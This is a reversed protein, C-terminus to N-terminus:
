ICKFPPLQYHQVRAHELGFFARRFGIKSSRAHKISSNENKLMSSGAWHEIKEYEICYLRQFYAFKPLFLANETLFGPLLEIMYFKRISSYAWARIKMKSCARAREISSKKMRLAVSIVVSLFESFWGQLSSSKFNLDNNASRSKKRM